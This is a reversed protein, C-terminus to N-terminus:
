TIIESIEGLLDALPDSLKKYKKEFVKNQHFELYVQQRGSFGGVNRGSKLNVGIRSRVSSPLDSSVILNGKNEFTIWGRDFLQDAHPALLMGNHGDIREDGTVCSAWPKIHSAHLFRLDQIGTLRCGKEVDVLRRKFLSQKKRIEILGLTVTSGIEVEIDTPKHIHSHSFFGGDDKPVLKFVIAIRNPGRTAPTDPKLYSSIKVFEGLYLYPKGRGTSKFALLRKGETVHENIARNGATFQMDGSQGEGFYHLINEGDEEEWRDSYGHSTGAEGTFIIVFPRDKPTSIGGYRQGGLLDHIDTRRNYLAGVQYPIDSALELGPM